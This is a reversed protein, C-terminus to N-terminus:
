RRRGTVQLWPGIYVRRFSLWAIAESIWHTSHVYRSEATALTASFSRSNMGRVSFLDNCVRVDAFGARSLLLRLANPTYGFQYPFGLMGTHALLKLLLCGFSSDARPPFRKRHTIRADAALAREVLAVFAGNPVRLSLWGGPRLVRFIEFLEERPDPLQDFCNWICVADFQHADFHASELSGTHVRLGHARAFEGVQLGVDVGQADLGCDRAAALFGGVYSGVELVRASGGIRGILAPMRARYATRYSRYAAELWAPDYHDVAYAHEAEM